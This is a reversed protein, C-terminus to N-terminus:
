RRCAQEGLDLRFVLLDRKQIGNEFLPHREYRFYHLSHWHGPLEPQNAATRGQQHQRQPRKHEETHEDAQVAPVPVRRRYSGACDEARAM